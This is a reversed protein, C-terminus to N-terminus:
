KGDSSEMRLRAIEARQFRIKKKLTQVHRQYSMVFEYLKEEVFKTPFMTDRTPCYKKVWEACKKYQSQNM